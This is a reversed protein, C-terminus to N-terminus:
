DLWGNILGAWGWKVTGSSKGKVDLYVYDDSSLRVRVDWLLAGLSKYSSLTEFVTPLLSIVGGSDRRFVGHIQQYIVNTTGIERGVVYGDMAATGSDQLYM